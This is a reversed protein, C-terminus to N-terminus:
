MVTHENLVRMPGLAFGFGRTQAAPYPAPRPPPSGIDASQSSCTQPHYTQPHYTQSVTLRDASDFTELHMM